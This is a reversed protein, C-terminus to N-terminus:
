KGTIQNYGGYWSTTAGNNFSKAFRIKADEAIKAAKQRAKEQAQQRATNEQETKIKEQEIRKNENDQWQNYGDTHIGLEVFAGARAGKPLNNLLSKFEPQATYLDLEKQTSTLQSQLQKAEDSEPPLGSLTSAIKNVRDKLALAGNYLDENSKNSGGKYREAIKLKTLDHQLQISMKSIENQYRKDELDFDHQRNLTAEKSRWDMEKKAAEEKWGNEVNKIIGTGLGAAMAALIGGYGM